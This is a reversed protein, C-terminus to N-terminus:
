ILIKLLGTLVISNGDKVMYIKLSLIGGFQVKYSESPKNEEIKDLIQRRYDNVYDVFSIYGDVAINIHKVSGNLATSSTSDFTQHQPRM